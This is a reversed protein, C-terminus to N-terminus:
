ATPANTINEAGIPALKYMAGFAALVEDLRRKNSNEPVRDSSTEKAPLWQQMAEKIARKQAVTVNESNSCVLDKHTSPAFPNTM